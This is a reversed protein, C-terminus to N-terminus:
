LGGLFPSSKLLLELVTELFCEFYLLGLDSLQLVLEFALLLEKIVVQLSATNELVVRACLWTVTRLDLHNAYIVENAAPVGRSTFRFSSVIRLRM